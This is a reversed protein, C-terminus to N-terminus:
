PDNIIMPSSAVTIGAPLLATTNNQWGAATNEVEASRQGASVRRM